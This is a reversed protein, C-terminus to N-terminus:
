AVPERSRSRTSSRQIRYTWLYQEPHARILVEIQRNVASLAEVPEKPLAPLPTIWLRFGRGWSLRECFFLLPTAQTSDLLRYPLTPMYAKQGLFTTWAGEGKGAIQDPLIGVAENRKLTSYLARVGSRNTPVTTMWGRERGQKMLDHVWQHRPPRYLATMPLRSAFYLGILEHCGLHPAIVMLGHGRQRAAEVHEWGHCERVWPLLEEVPRLWIPIMELIGQGVGAAARLLMWPSYLDAFRLNDVITLRTRQRFLHALGLVAGLLQVLPLPLRAILNFLRLM